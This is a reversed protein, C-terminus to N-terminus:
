EPRGVKYCLPISEKTYAWYGMFQKGKYAAFAFGANKKGELKRTVLVRTTKGKGWYRREPTDVFRLWDGVRIDDFSISKRKISM